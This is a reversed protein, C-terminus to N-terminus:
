RDVCQPKAAALLSGSARDIMGGLILRGVYGAGLQVDVAILMYLGRAAIRQAALCM